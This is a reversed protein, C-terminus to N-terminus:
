ESCVEIEDKVIFANPYQEALQKKLRWAEIKTFCNGVRVKFYPQQYKVYVALDPFQTKLQAKIQHAPKQKTGTYIQLRYGKAAAVKEIYVKNVAEVGERDIVTVSLTDTQQAQLDVAALLFLFVATLPIFIRNNNKM